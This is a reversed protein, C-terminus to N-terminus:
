VGRRLRRESFLCRDRARSGSRASLAIRSGALPVEWSIERASRATPCSRVCTSISRWHRSSTRMMLPRTTKRTGAGRGSISRKKRTGFSASGDQGRARRPGDGRFRRLLRLPDLGARLDAVVGDSARRGGRRLRRRGRALVWRRGRGREGTAGHRVSGEQGNMTMTLDELSFSLEVDFAKSVEAGNAPAFVIRTEVPHFAVCLLLASSPIWRINM